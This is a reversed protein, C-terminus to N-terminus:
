GMSVVIVIRARPSFTPNAGICKQSGSTRCPRFRVVPSIKDVHCFSAGM